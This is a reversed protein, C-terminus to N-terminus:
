VVPFPVFYHQTCTLTSVRPRNDADPSFASIETNPPYLFVAPPVFIFGRAGDDGGYVLSSDTPEACAYVFVVATWRPVDSISVQLM